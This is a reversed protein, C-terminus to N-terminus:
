FGLGKLSNQLENAADEAARDYQRGLGEIQKGLRDLENSATVMVIIWYIALITGIIGCVLGGIALGKGEGEKKKANVMAIAGLVVGPITILIAYAGACPVLSIVLGVIGLVLSAVGM